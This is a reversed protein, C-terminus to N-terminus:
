DFVQGSGPAVLSAPAPPYLIDVLFMSIQPVYTVLALYMIMVGVFPLAAKSVETLGMKSLHSAVYLNLGVPPTIMGIEMNITMIIGLHIPDIGLAKAIPLFLPALILIISSPEMFQGALLLVLNVVILFQWSELNMAVVWQSLQQPIQESTLLFNFLIANTIIYLLMSSTNAAHLL